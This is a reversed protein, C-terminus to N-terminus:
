ARCGRPCTLVSSSCPLSEVRVQYQGEETETAAAEVRAARGVGAMGGRLHVATPTGDEAIGTTTIADAVTM